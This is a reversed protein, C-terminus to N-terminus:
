HWAQSLGVEDGNHQYATCAADWLAQPAELSATTRAEFLYTVDPQGPEQLLAQALLSATAPPLSTPWQVGAAQKLMALLDRSRATMGPNSSGADQKLSAALVADVADVQLAAHKSATQLMQHAEPLRGKSLLSMLLDHLQQQKDPLNNTVALLWVQLAAHMAADASPQQQLLRLTSNFAHGQQHATWAAALPAHRTAADCAATADGLHLAALFAMHLHGPQLLKASQAELLGFLRVTDEHQHAAHLLTMGAAFASISGGQTQVAHMLDTVIQAAAIPKAAALDQAAALATDWDQRQLSLQAVEALKAAPPAGCLPLAQSKSHRYLQLAHDGSQSLWLKHQAEPSLQHGHKCAQEFLAWIAAAMAEDHASRTEQSAAILGSILRGSYPSETVAGDMASAIDPMSALRQLVTSYVQPQQDAELSYNQLSSLVVWMDPAHCIGALFAKQVESTQFRFDMMLDSALEAEDPQMCDLAKVLVLTAAQKFATDNTQDKQISHWTVDLTKLMQGYCPESAPVHETLGPQKNTKRAGALAARLGEQAAEKHASACWLSAVAATEWSSISLAGSILRDFATATPLCPTTSPYQM